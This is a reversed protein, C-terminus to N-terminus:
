VQEVTRDVFFKDALKEGKISFRNQQKPYFNVQCLIVCRIGKINGIEGFQFNFINQPTCRGWFGKGGKWLFITTRNENCVAM